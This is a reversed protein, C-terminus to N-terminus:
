GDYQELVASRAAALIPLDELSDSYAVDWPPRIGRRALQHAKQIGRNRVAVRLGTPAAALQSAVLEITGLGLGDLIARALCEECATVVLVRDGAHRHANLANLAMPSFHRSDRALDGGFGEALARYRRESLGFLAVQVVFKVVAARGSRSVCMPLLIPALVLLPLARWWSRAYHHRMLLTFADGRVLVGDFDFLVLPPKRRPTTM